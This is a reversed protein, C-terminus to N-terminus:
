NANFKILNSKFANMKKILNIFEKQITEKRKTQRYSFSEREREKDIERERQREKKRERKKEKQSEIEDIWIRWEYWHHLIWNLISSLTNTTICSILSNIIEEWYRIDRHINSFEKIFAWFQNINIMQSKLWNHFACQWHLRSQM